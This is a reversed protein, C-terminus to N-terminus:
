QKKIKKDRITEPYALKEELIMDTASAIGATRASM